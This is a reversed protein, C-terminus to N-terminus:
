SDEMPEDATEGLAWRLANNVGEEYSMAPLNSVGSEVAHETKVIEERLQDDSPRPM